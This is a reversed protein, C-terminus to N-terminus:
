RRLDGVKVVAVSVDSASISAHLAGGCSSSGGDRLKVNGYVGHISYRDVNPKNIPYINTSIGSMSCIPNRNPLLILSYDM